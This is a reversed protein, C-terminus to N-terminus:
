ATEGTTGGWRLYDDPTDLDDFAAPDDVEFEVVSDAYLTILSNVGVGPPLKRVALAIEWPLALPHGRRGAAMPVVISRPASAAREIVRGVLAPTLGPSDAPTLLVTVPNPELRQLAALGLEISARMDPPQKEPAVVEAGAASAERILAAAGPADAPPPVVLVPAAGATRLAIVVRAILAVGEIPLILKPRGMRQSHGAAPVLAAIM